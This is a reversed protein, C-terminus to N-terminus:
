ENPKKGQYFTENPIGSLNGALFTNDDMGSDAFVFPINM